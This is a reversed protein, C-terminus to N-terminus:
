RSRSLCSLRRPAVVDPQPRRLCDWFIVSNQWITQCWTGGLVMDVATIIKRKKKTYKEKCKINSFDCQKLYIKKTQKNTKEGDNRGVMIMTDCSLCFTMQRTETVFLLVHVQENSSCHCILNTSNTRRSQRRETGYSATWCDDHM